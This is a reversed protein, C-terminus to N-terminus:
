WAPRRDVRSDSYSRALKEARRYADYAQRTWENLKEQRFKKENWREALQMLEDESLFPDTMIRLPEDPLGGDRRGADIIAKWARTLQLHTDILTVGLYDDLVRRRKSDKKADFKLGSKVTFPNMPLQAKGALEDYLGPIVSFRNLAFQKPGGPSGPPLMWLRQGEPRLTFEVFAKALALHPAGKLVAIPDPNVVAQGEPFLFGVNEAGMRAVQPLAYLDIAGACALERMAVFEPADSGGDTFYRVNGAFQRLLRIGEDWGKSQLVIEYLMHVSGSKRPDGSGTWGYFEPKSMDAWSVPEAVKLFRLVPKSYIIGFGALCTGYWYGEPDYIARGACESPVRGLVDPSIEIRELFGQEKLRLAAPEGGGFFLDINIGSPSRSFESSVFKLCDSTGGVDLWEPKVAVGTKKLYWEHFARSFEDKIGAWHPSLIVLPEGELVIGKSQQYRGLTVLGVIIALSLFVAAVNRLWATIM